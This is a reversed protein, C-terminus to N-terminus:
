RPMALFQRLRSMKMDRLTVDRWTARLSMFADVDDRRADIDFPPTAYLL